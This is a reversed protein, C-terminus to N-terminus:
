PNPTRTMNTEMAAGTRVSDGDSYGLFIVRVQKPNLNPNPRPSPNSDPNPSPGPNPNPNPFIVRVSPPTNAAVYWSAAAATAKSMTDAENFCGCANCEAGGWMRNSNPYEGAM